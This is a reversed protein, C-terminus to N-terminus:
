AATPAPAGYRRAFVAAAALLTLVEDATRAPHSDWAEYYAFPAGTLARILLGLTEVVAEHTDPSFTSSTKEAHILADRIGRGARVSPNWGVTRLIEAAAEAHAAIQDGTLPMGSSGWRLWDDRRMLERAKEILPVVEEGPERAGTGIVFAEVDRAFEQEALEQSRPGHPNLEFM